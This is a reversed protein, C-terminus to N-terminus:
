ELSIDEMSEEFVKAVAKLVSDDEVIEYVSEAAEESSTDEM